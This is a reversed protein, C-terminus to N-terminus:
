WGHRPSYHYHGRHPVMHGGHGGHHHGGWGGGWSPYGGLGGGWSPYGGLGYSPRAFGGSNYVGGVGFGGNGFGFGVSFGPQAVVVPTPRVVVPAYGGHGYGPPHASVSGATVAVGAAAVAGLIATRM